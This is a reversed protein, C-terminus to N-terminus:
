RVEELKYVPDDWVHERIGPDRDDSAADGAAAQEIV